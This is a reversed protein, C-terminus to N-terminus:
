GSHTKRQKALKRGIDAVIEMTGRPKRRPRPLNMDGDSLLKLGSKNTKPKSKRGLAIEMREVLEDHLKIEGKKYRGLFAELPVRVTENKLLHPKEVLLFLYEYTRELVDPLRGRVAEGLKRMSELKEERYEKSLGEAIADALEILKGNRVIEQGILVMECTVALKLEKADIRHPNRLTSVLEDHLGDVYEKDLVSLKCATISALIHTRKRALEIQLKEKGEAKNALEKLAAATKAATRFIHPLKERQIENKEVDKKTSAAVSAHAAIKNLDKNERQTDM